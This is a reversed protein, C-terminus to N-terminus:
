QGIAVPRARRPISPGGDNRAGLATLDAACKQCGHRGRFGVGFSDGLPYGSNGVAFLHLFDNDDHLLRNYGPSDSLPMKAGRMRAEISATISAYLKDRYRSARLNFYTVGSAASLGLLAIVAPLFM